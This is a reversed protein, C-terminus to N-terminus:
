NECQFTNTTSKNRRFMGRRSALERRNINHHILLYQGYSDLNHDVEQWKSDLRNKIRKMKVKRCSVRGKM